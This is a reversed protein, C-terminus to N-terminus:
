EPEQMEVDPTILPDLLPALPGPLLTVICLIELLKFSVIFGLSIM